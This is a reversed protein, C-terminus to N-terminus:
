RSRWAADAVEPAPGADPYIEDAMWFYTIAAAFMVGVLWLVWRRRRWGDRFASYQVPVDVLYAACYCVNALVALVFLALLSSWTFESRFHPWTFMVWGLVVVSLIGNYGIRKPEWYRLADSFVERFSPPASTMPARRRQKSQARREPRLTFYSWSKGSIGRVDERYQGGTYSAIASAWFRMAPANGQYVRVLWKGPHRNWLHAAMTRGIGNRRAHAAVYFEVVDTTGAEGVHRQACGVFAFGLPMGAAYALYVHNGDGWVKELPYEFGEARSSEPPIWAQMDRCYQKLLPVLTADHSRDARVIHFDALAM